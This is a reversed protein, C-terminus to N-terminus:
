VWVNKWQFGNINDQIKLNVIETKRRQAPVGVWVCGMWWTWKGQIKLSCIKCSDHCGDAFSKITLSLHKREINFLTPQVNYISIKVQVNEWHGQGGLWWWVNGGRKEFCWGTLLVKKQYVCNLCWCDFRFTMGSTGLRLDSAMTMRTLEGRELTGSPSTWGRCRISRGMGTMFTDSSLSPSSAQSASLVSFGGSDCLYLKAGGRWM